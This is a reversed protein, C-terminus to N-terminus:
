DVGAAPPPCSEIAPASSLEDPSRFRAEAVRTSFPVIRTSPCRSSATQNRVGAIVSKMWFSGTWPSVGVSSM